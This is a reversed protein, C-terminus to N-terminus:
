NGLYIRGPFNRNESTCRVLIKTTLCLNFSDLHLAGYGRKQRFIKGNICFKEKYAVKVVSPLM